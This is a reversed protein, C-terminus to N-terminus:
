KFRQKIFQQTQSPPLESTAAGTRVYFREVGGDKVFVPTKSPQCDIVMVRADQYDEFRPSIYLMSTAGIRDKIINVLHLDMNDENPFKDAFIGVPEGDDSVGIVLTGGNMNLFAAITKLVVLEMKSDKEGTHLNTRLTSKFEISTGEHAQVLQEVTLASAKSETPEGGALKQYADRISTAMLERRKKLFEHYGMNEWGEPLAHWVYMQALEAGKFRQALAPVYDAPSDGSIEGNDGWEVLTFNAIQNTERPDAIGIKKLHEKPFLHHRELASKKSKTSPDLLETVKHNSFLVRADHLTLAAFFAFMSPSSAAATALDNPLTIAWYDNTLTANCIEEIVSVFSAPDQVGRLRALDFEMKSEPSSSYRGTLATMFFWRAILQRLKFEDVKYETRGLLYLIYAFVINNQSSIIRGSRFGAQMIAKLFDHWYTLNLVRAQANKLIAFQAERRETSFAGTELDKGRLISYVYQLRARRFGLGVSVRLLQDPDPEIFHNFSSPGSSPTRAQRCFDELQTRGQDWFVSMLTLIFDAQNLKKGESNIRVFIEAVQEEDIGASLALTTFPFSLLNQLKSFAKRIRKREDPSIDRAQALSDLYGDVMDFLDTEKSWIVSINPIFAPDRKIAADLVEFKELLPNFAIEIKESQYDERVVPVGRTVAYLSTLRQQGDVILLSPTKQKGDTGISKSGGEIGNEWLLFYGVPFGRYISDFLNRVKANKWVFPRQIDPLGISGMQISDMLTGLTYDVKNFVQESM